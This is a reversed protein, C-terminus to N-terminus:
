RQNQTITQSLNFHPEMKSHESHEPWVLITNYKRLASSMLQHSHGIQPLGSYMYACLGGLKRILKREDVGSVDMGANYLPPADVSADKDSFKASEAPPTSAKTDM